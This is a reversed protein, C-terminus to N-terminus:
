QSYNMKISRKGQWVDFIAQAAIKMPDFIQVPLNMNSVAFSLETCALLISSTNLEEIVHQMLQKANDSIQSGTYKIGFEPNYIASTIKSQLESNPAPEVIKINEKSLAIRYLGSSQTGKTSIIGIQEIRCSLINKATENPLHIWPIAVEAIIENYFVHATNCTVVVVDVGAAKMKELNSIIYPVPSPGTHNIAVTRDPTLSANMYIWEPYNQDGSIGNQNCIDFFLNQFYLGAATGMGGLIGILPKKTM